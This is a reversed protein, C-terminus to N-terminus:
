HYLMLYICYSSVPPLSVSPFLSSSLSNSSSPDAPSLSISLSLSLSLSLSPSFPHPLPLFLSPLSLLSFHPPFSILYVQLNLSLTSPFNLERLKRQDNGLVQLSYHANERTSFISRVILVKSVKFGSFHNNLSKCMLLFSHPLKGCCYM